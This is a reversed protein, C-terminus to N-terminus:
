LLSLSSRTCVSGLILQLTTAYQATTQQGNVYNVTTDSTGHFVYVGIPRAYSGMANYAVQGQTSPSPGGSFMAQFATTVSDAAKYRFHMLKVRPGTNRANKYLWSFFFFFFFLRYCPAYELGSCSAIANFVDPYTAGLIVSMAAGATSLLSCLMDCLLALAARVPSVLSLCKRPTSRLTSSHRKTRSVCSSLSVGIRERVLLSWRLLSRRSVAEAPSINRCSGTGASTRTRARRSCRICRM